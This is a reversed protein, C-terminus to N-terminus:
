TYLYLPSTLMQMWKHYVDEQKNSIQGKLVAPSIACHTPRKGQVQSVWTWNRWGEQLARCAVPTDRGCPLAQCAVQTTNSIGFVTVLRMISVNSTGARAFRHAVPHCHCHCHCYKAMNQGKVKWLWHCRDGTVIEVLDWESIYNKKKTKTQSCCMASSM